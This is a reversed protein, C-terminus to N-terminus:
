GNDDEKTKVEVEQEAEEVLAIVQDINLESLDEFRVGHVVEKATMRM